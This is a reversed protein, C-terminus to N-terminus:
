LDLWEDTPPFVEQGHIITIGLNVGSYDLGYKGENIVTFGWNDETSQFYVWSHMLNEFRAKDRPTEPITSRNDFGFPVEADIRTAQTATPIDSKLVM